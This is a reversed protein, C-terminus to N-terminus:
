FPWIDRLSTIQCRVTRADVREVGPRAAYGDAMDTRYLTMQLTAPLSPRWPKFRAPSRLADAIATSVRLHAAPLALGRVHNRGLGWKVVATEVDGLLDTAESATAADGSVALIPVEFHGAYAAELGLEGVIQGNLRIEFITASSMTHDLFGDLTGARAHHGLLIVGAFSADLGPMLRGPRPTEYTARPDMRDIRVQGGGAHTDCAVVENAGAAFCAEIAANIEQMMLECGGPYEPGGPQVQEMRRIGSIGEMDALIYIKM